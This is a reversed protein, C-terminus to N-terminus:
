WKKSEDEIWQMVEQYTKNYFFTQFFEDNHDITRRMANMQQISLVYFGKELDNLFPITEQVRQTLDFLLKHAMDKNQIKQQKKQNKM